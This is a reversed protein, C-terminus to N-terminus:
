PREANLKATAADVATKAGQLDTVAQAIAADNAAPLTAILAEVRAIESDVSTGLSVISAQLATDIAKLDDIAAMFDGEREEFRRLIQYFKRTSILM